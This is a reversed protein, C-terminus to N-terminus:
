DECVARRERSGLSENFDRTVIDINTEEEEFILARIQLGKKEPAWSDIGLRASRYALGMQRIPSALSYLSASENIQFRNRPGM